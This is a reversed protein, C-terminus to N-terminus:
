HDIALHCPAFRIERMRSRIRHRRSLEYQSNPKTETLSVSVVLQDAFRQIEQETLEFEPGASMIEIEKMIKLLGSEIDRYHELSMLYAWQSIHAVDYGHRLQEKLEQAFQRKTYTM